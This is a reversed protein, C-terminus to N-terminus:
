PSRYINIHPKFDNVGISVWEHSRQRATPGLQNLSLRSQTQVCMCSTRPEIGPAHFFSSEGDMRSHNLTPIIPEIASQQQQHFYNCLFLRANLTSKMWKHREHRRSFWKVERYRQCHLQFICCRKWAVWGGAKRESCTYRSSCWSYSVAASTPKHM